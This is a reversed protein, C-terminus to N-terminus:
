LKTCFGGGGWMFFNSPSEAEKSAMIVPFNGWRSGPGPCSVSGTFCLRLKNAICLSRRGKVPPLGINANHHLALHSNRSKLTKNWIAM